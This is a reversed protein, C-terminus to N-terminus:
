HKEEFNGSLKKQKAFLYSAFTPHGPFPMERDLTFIRVRYDAKPDTPAVLFATESFNLWRTIKQMAITALDDADFVVALPNGSCPSEAFIDVLQFRRKM